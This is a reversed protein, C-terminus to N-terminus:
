KRLKAGRRITEIIGTLGACIVTAGQQALQGGTTEASKATEISYSSDGDVAIVM